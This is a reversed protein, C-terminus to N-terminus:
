SLFSLSSLFSNSLFCLLLLLFFSLTVNTRKMQLSLRRKSCENATSLLFFRLQTVRTTYRFASFSLFFSFNSEKRREEERERKEKEEKRGKKKRKETKREKKKLDQDEEQKEEEERGQCRERKKKEEGKQSSNAAKKKDLQRM